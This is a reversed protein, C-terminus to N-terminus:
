IEFKKNSRYINLTGELYKYESRLNHNESVLNECCLELKANKEILENIKSESIQLKLISQDYKIKLDEYGFNIKDVVMCKEVSENYKESYTLQFEFLKQSVKQLNNLLIENERSLMNCREDLNMVYDEDYVVMEGSMVKKEFLTKLERNKIELNERLMTNENLLEKIRMEYKNNLQQSVKLEKDINALHGDYLDFLPNIYKYNMLRKCSDDVFKDYDALNDSEPKIILSPAEIIINRKLLENNIKIIYSKLTDIETKYNEILKQLYINSHNLLFIM